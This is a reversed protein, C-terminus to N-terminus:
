PLGDPSRCFQIQLGVCLIFFICPIYFFPFLCKTAKEGKKQLDGFTSMKTSNRAKSSSNFSTAWTNSSATAWRNGGGGFLNQWLLIGCLGGVVSLRYNQFHAPCHCHFPNLDGKSLPGPCEMKRTLSCLSSDEM